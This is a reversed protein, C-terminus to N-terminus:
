ATPATRRGAVARVQWRESGLERGEFARLAAFTLLFTVGWILAFHWPVIGDVLIAPFDSYYLASAYKLWSITDVAGALSSALYAFVTVAGTWAAATGRSPAIAGLLLGVAAIFLVFSLQAFTAGILPLVTLDETDIFPVTLLWGLCIIAAILISAIGLAGVKEFFIRRRSLPLSGLFELTGSAEEGAILGTAAFVAFVAFFLPALSFFELTFFGRATALSLTAGGSFLDLFAAPYSDELEAMTDIIAPFLLAVLAAYAALGLGYSVIQVRLTSLNYRLLTM